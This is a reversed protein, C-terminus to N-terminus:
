SKRTAKLFQHLMKVENEETEEVDTNIFIIPDTILSLFDLFDYVRSAGTLKGALDRLLNIISFISDLITIVIWKWVKRYFFKIQFAWPVVSYIDRVDRIQTLEPM